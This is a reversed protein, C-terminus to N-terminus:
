FVKFHSALKIQTALSVGEVEEVEGEQKQVACQNLKKREGLNTQTSLSFTTREKEKEGRVKRREREKGNGGGRGLSM